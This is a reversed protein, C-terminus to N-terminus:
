KDCEKMCNNYSFQVFNKCEQVEKCKNYAVEANHYCTMECSAEDVAKQDAVSSVSFLLIAVIPFIAFRYM